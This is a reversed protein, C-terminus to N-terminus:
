ARRSRTAAAPSSKFIAASPAPPSSPAIPTSPPLSSPRPPPPSGPSRVALRSIHRRSPARVFRGFSRNTFPLSAPGLHHHLSAGAPPPPSSPLPWLLRHSPPVVRLPPTPLLRRHLRLFD